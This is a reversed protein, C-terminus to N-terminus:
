VNLISNGALQIPESHAEVNLISSGAMQSPESHAEPIVSIQRKGINEYYKTFINNENVRKKIVSKTNIRNLFSHRKQM